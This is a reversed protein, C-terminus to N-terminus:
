FLARAKPVAKTWLIIQEYMSRRSNGNNPENCVFTASNEAQKTRGPFM